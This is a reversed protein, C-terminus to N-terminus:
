LFFDFVIKQVDKRKLFLNNTKVVLRAKEINLSDLTARIADPNFSKMLIGGTLTESADYKQLQQALFTVYSTASEKDKFDFNIQSTRALEDFLWRQPGVQRLMDLYALVIDVVLAREALGKDTLEIDVQFVEWERDTQSVGACLETALNRAKLLSLISGSGEHGLLNSVYHYNGEDDNDKPLVWELAVARRERVPVVYLASALQEARLIEAGHTRVALRKDPVAAFLRQVAARLQAVPQRGVVALTGYNASYHEAHFAILRRRVDVGAATPEDRLTRLDGTHFKSYPHAANATHRRLFNSRWGDQQLNKQHENHVANMERETASETFLPAIFFQAFIDMAKM